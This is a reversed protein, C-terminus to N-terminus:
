EEIYQEQEIKKILVESEGGKDRAKKWYELATKQYGLKYHVDGYHELVAPSEDGGNKIAKYIWKKAEEYNGQKFLIWGYTDQNNSNGPNLQIAKQIMEAAKGLKEGRLSLYYSYNNLVYSNQPNIKLVRDFAQYAQQHEGLEYSAEGLFIFFQELMEQNERLVLRKGKDLADVAQEYNKLQYNAIGNFLYPLPQMPFLEKARASEKAMAKHDQLQNELRLLNEWVSYKSSDVKIVARLQDRAEQYKEQQLLISAYLSNIEPNGPHTEVVISILEKVDDVFKENVESIAFYNKLMRMKTEVDLKPSKFASKLEELAKQKEGAQQYYDALSLNVYPNNPNIKRAQKYVELAKKKKGANMYLDGLELYYEAKDPFEDILKRVEKAAKKVEDQMMYIQKKQLILKPNLGMKKELRDYVEIAKMYKGAYVYNMALQDMYRLEEPELEVLEEYIQAAKLHKESQQYLDALLLKYWKNTDNIAEAKQANELAQELDDKKIHTRAMEYYAAHHLSDRKVCQQYKEIAKDYNELIREKTADVFLETTRRQYADSFRSPIGRSDQKEKEAKAPPQQTKCASLAFIAITLIWFIRRM